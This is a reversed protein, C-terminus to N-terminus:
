IHSKCTVPITVLINGQIPNFEHVKFRILKITKLELTDDDLTKQTQSTLKLTVVVWEM